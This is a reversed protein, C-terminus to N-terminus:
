CAPSVDVAHRGDDRIDKADDHNSRGEAHQIPDYVGSYPGVDSKEGDSTKSGANHRRMM